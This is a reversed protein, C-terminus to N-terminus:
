GLNEVIAFNIEFRKDENAIAMIVHSIGAVKVNEQFIRRISTKTINEM